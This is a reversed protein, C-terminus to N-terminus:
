GSKCSRGQNNEERASHQARKAVGVCLRASQPRLPRHRPVKRMEIRGDRVTLRVTDGAHLGLDRRVPAPIEVAADGSGDEAPCLTASYRTPKPKRRM